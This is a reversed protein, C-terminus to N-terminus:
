TLPAFLNNLSEALTPHAFTADRLATYPLGGMMAVQLLSMIEGGELGLVAAGLLQDTEADVLVKMLGRTEDTEIARAVQTMPLTAVKVKKGQKKADDESLGVRGLQPDIFVTYPVDRGKTTKSGGDLLNSKLIRFDDYSIHTFAPGGKVDGVAYVGPTSTELRDDTKVYGKDDTEVGAAQLNLSDSNPTRGTAVLLHSGSVTKGGSLTVTVGNQSSVAEAGTELLVTVGDERLIDTVADAIDQDERPLLQKGRQIITVESGFRRFMQAFELGIYGGGLILLHEPVAGLEMVTTSTLFPVGKLGDLPPVSPRQGVNVVVTEAELTREGGGSLAVTLTKPATFAAEGWILELNEQTELRQQGGDRFSAVVEAKRERIRVMDVRVPGTHVGFDAARRALYAVRASAVMTKTPTCGDNICTGGVHEREILAVRRGAQAAASALPGGAQGSGIIILDFTM